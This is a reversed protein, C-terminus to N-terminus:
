WRTGPRPVSTVMMMVVLEAEVQIVVVEGVVRSHTKFDYVPVQVAQGSIIKQVSNTLLWM